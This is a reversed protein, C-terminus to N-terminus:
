ESKTTITENGPPAGGSAFVDDNPGDYITLRSGDDRKIDALMPLEQSQREVVGGYREHGCLKLLENIDKDAQEIVDSDSKATPSDLNVRMQEAHDLISDLRSKAEHLERNQDFQRELVGRLNKEATELKSSADILANWRVTFQQMMEKCVCKANRHRHYCALAMANLVEERMEDDLTKIEM